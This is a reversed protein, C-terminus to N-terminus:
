ELLLRCVLYALSQLESTHEESRSARVPGGERTLLLSGGCALACRSAPPALIKSARTPPGTRAEVPAPVMVAHNTGSSGASAASSGLARLGMFSSPADCSSDPWPSITTYRGRSSATVMSAVM